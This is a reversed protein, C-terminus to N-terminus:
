MPTKHPVGSVTKNTAQTYLFLQTILAFILWPVFALKTGWTVADLLGHILMGVLSGTAGIALARHLQSIQPTLLTSILMVFLNILLALYAILGPLGLDLGIQLFLNHSHPFGEISVQMPFLLPIVTRFTGIGIGTLFFNYFANVSLTWIYIRGDWGGLSGDGGLQDLLLQTNVQRVVVIAIIILVIFPYLLRPWHLIVVLILATMAAVYGGRSQTLMLIISILGFLVGYFIRSMSIYRCLREEPVISKQLILSLILPLALVLMGALVNPHITEGVNIPISQLYDYLPFHFLRFQPKWAILPSSIAALIGGSFTILAAILPPNRRAPIWNILALYSALGFLLYGIAVWSTTRDPSLWLNVPLWLLIFLIIVDTPSRTYTVIHGPSSILLTTRKNGAKESQIQGDKKGESNLTISKINTVYRLPWFLFLAILLYPHLHLSLFKDPLIIPIGLLLIWFPELWVLRSFM